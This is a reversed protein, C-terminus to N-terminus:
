EYVVFTQKKESSHGSLGRLGRLFYKSQNISLLYILL